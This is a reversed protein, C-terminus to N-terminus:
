ASPAEPPEVFRGTPPEFGWLLAEQEDILDFYRHFWDEFLDATTTSLGLWECIRHIWARETDSYEGDLCAILICDRLVVRRTMDSMGESVFM